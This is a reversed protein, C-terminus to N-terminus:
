AQFRRIGFSQEVARRAESVSGFEGSALMSSLLNGIATAETPGTLVPIRCAKATLENLYDDRSGGGVIHLAEPREGTCATLEEIAEAYCEALSHYVCCLLEDLPLEPAGCYTRIAEIMSKPALFSHDNVNIRLKTEGVARAMDCLEAFSYDGAEKKISQIIWLGMINKLFRYQKRYGGENTFNYARAAETVTATAKETGLLSWTGSSLYCFHALESPVALVASATDHSPVHMVTLDYGIEEAIEPLLRGVTEGPMSLGGFLRTPYGLAQLIETDWEGREANVMGSTTAITYEQHMVGTLRYNLYDPMFLLHEAQELAEPEQMKVAMLQYITNYIQKQIGTKEYLAALAIREEVLADMGNTRSDRYGVTNGLLNGKGDLLAFDVGWTDIGMCVPLKGLERCKKMGAIIHSVLSDHEWCKQGNKEVMGNPFRYVEELLIRGDEVWGLIHRGSSAGIDVALYYQKMYKVEQLSSRICCM